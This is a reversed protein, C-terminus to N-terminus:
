IYHFIIETIEGECSQWGMGFPTRVAGSSSRKSTSGRPLDKCLDNLTSRIYVGYELHINCPSLSIVRPGPPHSAPAGSAQSGQFTLLPNVSPTGQAAGTENGPKYFLKFSALVPTAQSPALLSDQSKSKNRFPLPPLPGGLNSGNDFPSGGGSNDHGDIRVLGDFPTHGSPYSFGINTSNFPTRRTPHGFGNKTSNFPSM